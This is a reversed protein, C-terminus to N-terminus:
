VGRGQADQARVPGIPMEILRKLCFGCFEEGRAVSRHCIATYARQKGNIQRIALCRKVKPRSPVLHITMGPNGEREAQDAHHALIHM